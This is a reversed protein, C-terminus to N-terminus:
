LRSQNTKASLLLWFRVHGFVSVHCKESFVKKRRPNMKWISEGVSRLKFFLSSETLPQLTSPAYIFLSWLRQCYLCLLHIFERRALLLFTLLVPSVSVVGVWSFVLGAYLSFDESASSLATYPRLFQPFHAISEWNVCEAIFLFGFTARQIALSFFNLSWKLFSLSHPHIPNQLSLTKNQLSRIVGREFCLSLKSCKGKCFTFYGSNLVYVCM